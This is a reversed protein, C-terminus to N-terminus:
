AKDQIGSGILISAKNLRHIAKDLDLAGSCEDVWGDDIPVDMKARYPSIFSRYIKHSHRASEWIKKSPTKSITANDLHKINVRSEYFIKIGRTELQRSFLLEEGMLFIPAWLARFYNFFAPRIIYCAGFGLKIFRSSSQDFTDKRKTIGGLIKVLKIIIKSILFNYYYLDYIFERLRSIGAISHPNQKEEKLNTINPSIVITNADLENIIKLEQYLSTSFELDNNGIIFLDIDIIKERAYILGVNLAQFYGYNKDLFIIKATTDSLVNKLKSQEVVSSFNDVVIFEIIINNSGRDISDYCHKTLQCGSYNVVIIVIKKM